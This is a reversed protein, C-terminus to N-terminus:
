SKAIWNFIRVRHKRSFFKIRIHYNVVLQFLGWSIVLSVDCLKKFFKGNKVLDLYIKIKKLTEKNKKFLSYSKNCYM